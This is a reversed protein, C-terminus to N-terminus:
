SGAPRRRRSGGLRVGQPAGARRGSRVAAAAAVSRAGVPVVAGARRVAPRHRPPAGRHDRGPRHGHHPGPARARRRVAAAGHELLIPLADHLSLTSTETPATHYFFFFRSPLGATYSVEPLASHAAF